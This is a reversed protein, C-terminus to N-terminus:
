KIRTGYLYVDEPEELDSHIDLLSKKIVPHIFDPILELLPVLVFARKHAYPHPVKLDPHNIIENGWFIIDIDIERESWKPTNEDKVRGLKTEINQMKSLFEQPSLTTKVELAANVFWPQNKEGWPESEYLTSARVLKIDDSNAILSTALHIFNVKDGKNSGISLYVLTM